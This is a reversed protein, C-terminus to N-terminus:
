YIVNTPVVRGCRAEHIAECVRAFEKHELLLEVAELSLYQEQEPSSRGASLDALVEHLEHV